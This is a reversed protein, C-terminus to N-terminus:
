PTREPKWQQQAQRGIYVGQVLVSNGANSTVRISTGQPIVYGDDFLVSQKATMPKANWTFGGSGLFYSTTGDFIEVTLTPTGGAYENVRMWAVSRGPTTGLSITTVGTGTIIQNFPVAATSPFNFVSM